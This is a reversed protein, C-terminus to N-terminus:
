SVSAGGNPEPAPEDRRATMADHAADNAAACLLSLFFVIKTKM